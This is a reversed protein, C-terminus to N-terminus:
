PAEDSEHADASDEADSDDNGFESSADLGADDVAGREGAGSEVADANDVPEDSESDDDTIKAVSVVTIGETMNILKVGSAYRGQVSIDAVRIRIIVGDSNIIMLGDNETVAKIGVLKGTKPSSKYMIVGSGGRKQGRFSEVLTCKGYGKESVLLVQGDAITAGIIEDNERLKMGRVGVATRGVARAQEESFRIGRGESTALFLEHSGDSRLVDILTDDERFTIANLGSKRINSYLELASRKVLGKRTVMILYGDWNGKTVPIMAAIDEGGSLNLMNVLPMGKAQRGAEPIEFARLCFARGRTTFFLINDHTNAVFLDKVCDEERTQMGMVGRGGRAQSRYADLPIRKIYNLHSLTIVSQADDILDEINIDSADFTIKTRRVDGFKEKIRTLEESLIQLLYNGDDLIKRLEAILEQLNKYEDELRERALGSLARLRMEYIAKAQIETFGFRDILKPLIDSEDRGGRIIAIIEDIHDLAKLLGEVIHARREAKALDFQTRRTIVEKQHEIYYEIMEGLNLIKPENKVLALMIIGHSEQLPSLKYLQNLVVNANADKRLEIIIRVGNRNSEDRIDTIGEIKKDKVLEAMKKVLNAKNVQYPIASVRIQERGSSGPLPEIEADARLIVKGRGTRYADRISETGLIAGGTPYDPAKVIEILEKIPTEVGERMHGIRHLAATIVDTLNHPPINTSMGVAIGSSGNVLLNPFRAPLVTPETFQEDYNPAFNVTDKEIDTLMEMSLRSLRAETYRHAAAADGDMSGFNGHGDVLVYRMSFDQAMRVMSDYISSDGHPHYKGMTDGVIRASKKYAANPALNLESMAYLIRRHVPKLGDRVDPLARAVIVSMAYDLYSKKMEESIDIGKIRPSDNPNEYNENPNDNM